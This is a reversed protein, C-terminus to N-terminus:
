PSADRVKDRSFFHSGYAVVMGFAWLTTRLTFNSTVGGIVFSFISVNELFPIASAIFITAELLCIDRTRGYNKLSAKPYLNREERALAHNFFALILFMFGIDLAYVESVANPFSGTGGLQSFVYPEISVLFLLVINLSALGPTETPLISTIASYLQWIGILILFSM